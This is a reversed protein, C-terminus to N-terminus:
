KRTVMLASTTAAKRRRLRREMVTFSPQTSFIPKIFRLWRNQLSLKSAATPRGSEFRGIFGRAIFKQVAMGIEESRCNKGHVGSIFRRCFTILSRIRPSSPRRAEVEPPSPPLVFQQFQEVSLKTPISQLQQSKPM